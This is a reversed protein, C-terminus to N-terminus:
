EGVVEERFADVVGNGHLRTWKGIYSLLRAADYGLREVLEPKISPWRRRRQGLMLGSNTSRRVMRQTPGIAVPM